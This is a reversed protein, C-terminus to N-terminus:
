GSVPGRTRIYAQSTVQNYVKMVTRALRFGWSANFAKLCGVNITLRPDFVLTLENSIVHVQVQISTYRYM